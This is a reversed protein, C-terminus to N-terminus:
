AVTPSRRLLFVKEELRTLGRERFRSEAALVDQAHLLEISWDASFLARLEAEEVSFPPGDMEQQPYELSVLLMVHQQPLLAALRAAYRRRLPPPLAILAARDYVACVAELQQAQLAFFDGCLLRLRNASRVGFGHEQGHEPVLGAEAFVAEVAIPSLEVGLVPHREALWLLDLSKGCLPVFVQQESTLGLCPWWRQLQPNVEPQHFRIRNDRWRQHWFRAEV